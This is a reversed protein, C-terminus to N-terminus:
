IMVELKQAYDGLGAKLRHRESKIADLKCEPEWLCFADPVSSIGHMPRCCQGRWSNCVERCFVTDCDKILERM